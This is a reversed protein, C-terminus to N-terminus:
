VPGRAGMSVGCRRRRVLVRWPSIVPSTSRRSLRSFAVSYSPVHLGLWLAQRAPSSVAGLSTLRRHGKARAADECLWIVVFRTLRVTRRVRLRRRRQYGLCQGTNARTHRDHPTPSVRPVICASRRSSPTSSSLAQVDAGCEFVAFRKGEVRGAVGDLRVFAAAAFLSHDGTRRLPSQVGFGRM